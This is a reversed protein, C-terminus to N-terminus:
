VVGVGIEMEEPSLGGHHGFYRMEFRDKEYWWVTEGSYPLLILNGVRELFRDSVKEGFYGQKVFEETRVVEAVGSLKERLVGEAEELLEEKVYLFMDRPSGAPALVKGKKNTKLYKGIDLIELNLYFTRQPDVEIHGHDAFLVFSTDRSVKEFKPWFVKDMVELFAIVEAESQFSSPGYVHNISDIKEFYLYFYKRGKVSNLIEFLNTIAEPLTSYPIIKEAGKFIANSYPSPTFERFGFTYSKVGIEKLREYLTKFPFLREASVGYSELNGRGEKPGAVSFLLPAIVENIEPEYYFWEHVGHEGVPLGLNVTTVHAATTSPFQSTAKILQGQSVIKKLFPHESYKEIFRWGFSDIFLFILNQKQLFSKYKFTFPFKDKKEM